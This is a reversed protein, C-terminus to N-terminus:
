SQSSPSFISTFKFKYQSFKFIFLILLLSYLKLRGLQDPGNVDLNSYGLERGGELFAEVLPTRALDMVKMPGGKGHYGVINFMSKVPIFQLM